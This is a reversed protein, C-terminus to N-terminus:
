GALLFPSRRMWSWSGALDLMAVAGDAEAVAPVSPRCRAAAVDVRARGGGRGGVGGAAGPVVVRM